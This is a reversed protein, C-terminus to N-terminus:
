ESLERQDQASIPKQKVLVKDIRVNDMDIIEFQFNNWVLTDGTEPVRELVDLILGSLTNFDNEAYLYELDFHALFDYFSYQGDVLWSGDPREKIELEEDAELVQGILAELIDNLTVIGQIGGFEDTVVGYKVRAKRFQELAKYVSQNEPVFQAPRLTQSLSFGPRDIKDFLDKLYVVGIINDLKEAIVPYTNHMNDKIKARIKKPNDNIDIWILDSRHTMISGVDRDGLTFVREVIDQEVEQVTGGAFGEKVIAKIEEETIKNDEIRGLGIISLVFSTSKSLLWVFPYAIVSLFTMLGAILMAVREAFGMGIRKPVLEGLVLSLYTIVIVILIKSVIFASPELWDIGSLIKAFNQVFIEGSLLGTLISILTIGLQITSLFRDPNKALKLAKRASKKGKKIEIELRPKRASVLAIEAMSLLGNLLILCVIVIIGM